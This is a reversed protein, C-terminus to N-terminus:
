KVAEELLAVAQKIAQLAKADAFEAGVHCTPKGDGEYGTQMEACTRRDDSMFSFEFECHLKLRESFVKYAAVLEAVDKCEIRYQHWEAMDADFPKQDLMQERYERASIVTEWDGSVVAKLKPVGRRQM